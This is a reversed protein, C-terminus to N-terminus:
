RATEPEGARAAGEADPTEADLTPYVFDVRGRLTVHRRRLAADGDRHAGAAGRRGRGRVGPRHGLGAVPRDRDAPGHGARDAPGAVVNKGTVFGAFPATFTITRQATGTEELRAIFEAPVDFLELRRRAAAALEEGGRQVEPLSSKAFQRPARPARPPVGGPQRATGALVARVAARRRAGDPRHRERLAERRVGGGEDDGAPGADRRRGRHGDGPDDRSVRGEVAEVTRVGALRAGDAGINMEDPVGGAPGTASPPRGHSAPAGRRRGAASRIPVLRMGCIPCDGPKDSVVEPHMPCHYLPKAGRAATAPTPEAPAATLGRGRGGPPRRGAAVRRGARSRVATSRRISRRTM